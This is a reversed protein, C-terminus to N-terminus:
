AIFLNYIDIKSKKSNMRLCSKSKVDILQVRYQMKSNKIKLAVEKWSHSSAVTEKWQHKAEMSPYFKDKNKQVKSEYGRRAIEISANVSDPYSYKLNGILSTYAPHIKILEIGNLILRKTLNTVFKDRKWLNRNKRNLKKKTDILLM